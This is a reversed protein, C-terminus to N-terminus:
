GCDSDLPNYAGDYAGVCRYAGVGDTAPVVLQSNVINATGDNGVRGELISARVLLEGGDVRVAYGGAGGSLRVDTIEVGQSTGPVSVAISAATGGEHRVSLDSLSSSDGLEVVGELGDDLRGSITTVNRGSGRLHVGAPVVVQRDDCDYSGPGVVVM